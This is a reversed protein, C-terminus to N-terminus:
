HVQLEQKKEDDSKRLTRPFKTELEAAVDIGSTADIGGLTAAHKRAYDKWGAFEFTLTLCLNSQANMCQVSELRIAEITPTPHIWYSALVYHGYLIALPLSQADSPSWGALAFNDNYTPADFSAAIWASCTSFINKFEAHRYPTFFSSAGVAWQVRILKDNDSFNLVYGESWEDVESADPGAPCKSPLRDAGLMYGGSGDPKGKHHGKILSTAEKRSMGATLGFGTKGPSPEQSAAAPQNSSAQAQALSSTAMLFATLTVLLAKARMKRDKRTVRLREHTQTSAPIPNRANWPNLTLMAAQPSDEPPLFPVMGENRVLLYKGTLARCLFFRAAGFLLISALGAMPAFDEGLISGRLSQPFLLPWFNFFIDLGVFAFIFGIFICLADRWFRSM